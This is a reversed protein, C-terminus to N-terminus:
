DGSPVSEKHEKKRKPAYSVDGSLIQRL